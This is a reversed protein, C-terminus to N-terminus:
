EQNSDAPKEGCRRRKNSLVSELAQPETTAARAGCHTSDEQVLSRVQRGQMLPRIRLRQVM